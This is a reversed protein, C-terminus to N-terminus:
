LSRCRVGGNALCVFSSVLWLPLLLLTSNGGVLNGGCSHLEEGAGIFWLTFPSTQICIVRDGQKCSASYRRICWSLAIGDKGRRVDGFSCSSGALFSGFPGHLMAAVRFKGLFFCQCGWGSPDLPPCLLTFYYLIFGVVTGSHSLHKWSKCGTQVRLLLLAIRTCM